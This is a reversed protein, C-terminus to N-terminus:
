LEIAGIEIEAYKQRHGWHKRQNSKSKYKFGRIKKGATFDTIKAKVSSSDLKEKEVIVESGDIIAIAKLNIEDYLKFKEDLLEVNLKEGTSVTYQKGGTKIIAQM